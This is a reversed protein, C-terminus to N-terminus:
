SVHYNIVSSIFVSVTMLADVTQRGIALGQHFTRAAILSRKLQVGLKQPVDGFPTLNSYDVSHQLCKMYDDTLVYQANLLRFM